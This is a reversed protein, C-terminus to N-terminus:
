DLLWGRPIVFDNIYEVAKDYKEPSLNFYTSINHADNFRCWFNRFCKNAYKKYTKSKKGGLQGVITSRGMKNLEKAQYYNITIYNSM